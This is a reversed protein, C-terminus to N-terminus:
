QAYLANAMHMMVRNPDRNMSVLPRDDIYNAVLGNTSFSPPLTVQDAVQETQIPSSFSVGGPSGKVPSSFSPSSSVTFAIVLFGSAFFPILLFFFKRHDHASTKQFQKSCLIKRRLAYRHDTDEVIETSGMREFLDEINHHSQANM